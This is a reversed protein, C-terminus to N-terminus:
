KESQFKLGYKDNVVTLWTGNYDLQFREHHNTGSELVKTFFEADKQIQKELAHRQDDTLLNDEIYMKETKNNLHIEHDEFGEM